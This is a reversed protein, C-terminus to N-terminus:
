FTTDKFTVLNFEKEILDSEKIKVLSEKYSLQTSELDITGILEYDKDEVDVIWDSFTSMYPENNFSFLEGDRDMALYNADKPVEVILDFWKALKTLKVKNTLKM